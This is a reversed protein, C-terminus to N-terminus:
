PAQAGSSLRAMRRGPSGLITGSGTMSPVTLIISKSWSLAADGCPEFGPVAPEVAVAAADAAPVVDVSGFAGLNTRLDLVVGLRGEIAVVLRRERDLEVLYPTVTSSFASWPSMDGIPM